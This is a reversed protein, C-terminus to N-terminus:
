ETPVWRKMASSRGCGPHKASCAASAARAATQDGAKVNAEALRAYADDLLADPLGLDIAQQFAHAAAAPDNLTDLDVRGITFAALPARADTRHESVVRSLPAIADRPHASLRAVDALALLDDVNAIAAESALGDPGLERYANAYDGRNALDHWSPSPLMTASTALKPAALAIAPAASTSATPAPALHPEIVDISEGDILRKKQDPVNEGRVLVIGHDVNVHVSRRDANSTDVVSFRTGIVDVTVLGCEISWRRPGGPTVDFTAGGALGSVFTSGDNIRPTLQAGPTLTVHSADDFAFTEAHDTAAITAVPMGISTRLPSAAAMRASPTRDNWRAVSVTAIACVSMAGVIRFTRRRRAAINRRATIGSWIRDISEDFAEDNGVHQTIM